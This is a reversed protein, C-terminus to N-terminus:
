LTTKGYRSSEFFTSLARSVLVSFLFPEGFEKPVRPFYGSDALWFNGIVRAPNTLGAGSWSPESRTKGTPLHRECRSEQQFRDYKQDRAKPAVSLSSEGEWLSTESYISNKTLTVRVSCLHIM